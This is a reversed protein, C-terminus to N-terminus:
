NPLLTAEVSVFYRGSRETKLSLTSIKLGFLKVNSLPKFKAENCFRKVSNDTRLILKCAQFFVYIYLSIQGSKM